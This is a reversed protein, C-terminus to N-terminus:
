RARRPTPIAARRRFGSSSRTSSTRSGQARRPRSACFTSRPRRRDPRRGRRRRRRSRGAPPRDQERDPRDRPQERDGPLRERPDAGRDGAGRRRRAACRRLGAALAVGRVHLGRARAHRDPEAPPGELARAGGAGQDHDGARARAGDLRAAAGEHGPGRRHGDVQLIRDALTSKGHDIHAIISFNRIQAQDM